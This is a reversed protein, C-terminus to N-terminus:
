VFYTDKLLQFLREESLEKVSEKNQLDRLTYTNDELFIGLRIGKRLAYKTQSEVKKEDPYIESVIGMSQLKILLEYALMYNGQYYILVSLLNKISLAREVNKMSLLRDLGISGGVGSISSKLSYLSLLEDYRGGSCVSGLSRDENLFTEFVMGTYYDLGRTIKPNLQVIKSLELIELQEFIWRLYVLTKNDKGLFKELKNLTDLTTEEKITFNRIDNIQELTLFNLLDELIVEWGLKDVKDVSRLIDATYKEINLHHFYSILLDRHSIEVTFDFNGLATLTRHVTLLVDLDSIKNSSGVLDFDCQYFERFRGRQPKEGRWVKAIHYRKFPLGLEERHMAMYRAFPVTLDFRMAVDRQGGDQFRFIQKETEGGSKGLLTQAYELVPTDIPQYGQLYFTNMLRSIVQGRVYEERPLADRFGKVIKAEM